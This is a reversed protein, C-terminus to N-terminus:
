EDGEDRHSESLKCCLLTLSIPKLIEIPFSCVYYISINRSRESKSERKKQKTHVYCLIEKQQAVFYLQVDQWCPTKLVWTHAIEITRKM